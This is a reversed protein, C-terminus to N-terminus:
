SGSRAVTPSSEPNFDIVMSVRRNQWGETGPGAAGPVIQRDRSEGYSVARLRESPVGQQQLYNSVSEARRQGLAMNYSPDGASDTFGEVTITADSYYESIVSAFRDLLERDQARVQDDDFAFHVPTNFRLASELREITVDFDERLLSLDNELSNVRAEVQDMRSGLRAEVAEDGQRIEERLEARVQTLEAEMEDPSVTACASLLLVILVGAGKITRDMRVEM